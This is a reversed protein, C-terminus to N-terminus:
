AAPKPDPNIAVDIAVALAAAKSMEYRAYMEDEEAPSYTDPHHFPCDASDCLEADDPTTTPNNSEDHVNAPRTSVNSM